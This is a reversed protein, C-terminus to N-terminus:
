CFTGTNSIAAQIIPIDTNSAASAQLFDGTPRFEVFRLAPLHQDHRPLAHKISGPRNKLPISL